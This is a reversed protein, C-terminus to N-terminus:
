GYSPFEPGYVQQWQYIANAHQGAQEYAIADNARTYASAFSQLVAQHQLATMRAALDDGSTPDFVNLRHRGSGFFDRSAIRMDSGLSIFTAQAVMELHFGRLRDSHVRNWRKLLRVLRRLNGGLVQQRHDLFTNVSAPDTRTWGGNGSPLAYEQSGWYPFVPAIDVHPRQEYFLRVAQGRAGVLQVNYKNLAERVRSLLRGSDHKYSQWVTRDDFVALVDIDDLPRIITNRSASGIVQTRM